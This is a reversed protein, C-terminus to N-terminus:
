RGHNFFSVITERISRKKKSGLESIRRELEICRKELLEKDRGVISLNNKFAVAERRWFNTLSKQKKFKAKFDENNSLPKKM